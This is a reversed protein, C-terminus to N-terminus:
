DAGREEPSSFKEGHAMKGMRRIIDVLGCAKFALQIKTRMELAFLNVLLFFLLVPLMEDQLIIIQLSMERTSDGAATYSDARPIIYTLSNKCM